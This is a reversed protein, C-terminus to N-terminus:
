SLHKSILLKAESKLVTIIFGVPRTVNRRKALLGLAHNLAQEGYTHVLRRATTQSIHNAPDSINENLKNYVRIACAEHSQNPLPKQYNVHRAPEQPIKPTSHIIGMKQATNNKAQNVSAIPQITVNANVTILRPQRIFERPPAPQAEHERQKLQLDLKATTGIPLDGYWYYNVDQRKYIIRKGQGLLHAAISRQAPYRKGTQDVLVAGNIEIGDPVSKLNSWFIPQEWFCHRWHLGEIERNYADLTKCSVGLRRALWRRPYNGPRRRILDRHAAQRTTKATALDDLTIPDSLSVKVGFSDCLETTSPMIFVAALRHNPSKGSKQARGIFCKNNETQPSKAANAPTPPAPSPSPQKFIAERNPATAKLAAYISDRGVIGKLLELAQNTTFMNGPHVGKLRLGDLLRVTRTEGLKFLQERVTNPITGENNHFVQATKQQRPLRSFASQVTLRTEQYRQAPTEPRHSPSAPQWVHFDGLATLVQEASWGADRAQISTQFLAENRGRGKELVKRYDRRLDIAVKDTSSRREENYLLPKSVPNAAPIIRPKTQDDFFRIIHETDTQTLPKPQGGRFLRYYYGDIGTPRAIAYRGDALLDIGQGKRSPLHLHPPIQYYIHYGRRTQIVQREALDPFQASFQRFGEPTDFDLVALRSIKGTVIALGAFNSNLFWERLEGLVPRRQQYISWEVAAVKPRTPSAAGWVPIVSYGLSIYIEATDYLTQFLNSDSLICGSKVPTSKDSEAFKAVIFTSM